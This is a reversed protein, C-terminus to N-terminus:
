ARAVTSPTNQKNWAGAAEEATEYMLRAHCDCEVYYKGLLIHKRMKVYKASARCKKCPYLVIDDM